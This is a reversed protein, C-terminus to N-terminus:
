TDLTSSYAQWEKRLRELEEPTDVDRATDPRPSPVVVVEAAHRQIVPKGGTDGRLVLLDPFHKRPFFVPTGSAAGYGTVIIHGPHEAAAAIIQDILDPTVLPQDGLLIIAGDIDEALASIGAQLSTSMGAQYRDNVIYQQRGQRLVSRVADGNHGLVVLVTDAHSRLAAEVPYSVLAKGDLEVLLKHGNMRTSMGAALLIVAIKM